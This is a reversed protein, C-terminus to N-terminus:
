EVFYDLDDRTKTKYMFEIIDDDLSLKQHPAGDRTLILPVRELTYKLSYKKRLASLEDTKHILEGLTERIMVSIDEDFCENRGLEISDSTSFYAVNDYDLGLKECFDKLNLSNEEFEVLFYTLCYPLM